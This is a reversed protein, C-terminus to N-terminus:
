RGVAEVDNAKVVAHGFQEVLGDQRRAFLDGQGQAVGILELGAATGFHQRGQSGGQHVVGRVICTAYTLHDEQGVARDAIFVLHQGREARVPTATADEHDADAARGVAEQHVAHGLDAPPGVGMDAVGALDDGAHRRQQVAQGTRDQGVQPHDGLGSVGLERWGIQGIEVFVLREDKQGTRRIQPSRDGDGAHQVSTGPATADIEVLSHFAHADGLEPGSAADGVGLDAMAQILDAGLLGGLADGM